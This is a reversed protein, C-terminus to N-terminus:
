MYSVYKEKSKKYIEKKKKIVYDIGEVFEKKKRM